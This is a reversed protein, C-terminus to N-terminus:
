RNRLLDEIFTQEKESKISVLHGGLGRCYNEAEKWTLKLKSVSICFENMRVWGFDCQAVIEQIPVSKYEFVLPAVSYENAPNEKYSTTIKIAISNSTSIFKYSMASINCSQWKKDSGLDTVTINIGSCNSLDSENMNTFINQILASKDNVNLTNKSHLSANHTLILEIQNGYPIHIKFYCNLEEKPIISISDVQSTLTINYCYDVYKYHFNIIPRKKFYITTNRQQPFYLVRETIPIDEIKGCLKKENGILIYSDMDCPINLRNIDILLGPSQMTIPKQTLFILRCNNFEKPLM